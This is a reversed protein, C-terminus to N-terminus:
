SSRQADIHRATGRHAQRAPRGEEDHHQGAPRGTHGRWDRRGHRREGQACHRRDPLVRVTADQHRGVRQCPQITTSSNFTLEFENNFTTFKRNAPKLSGGSILYVHNKELIASFQDVQENFMTARIEGGQGDLLDVSLLKGDGKANTYTKVDGKKTVRVKITWRNMYPSLATVPYIAGSSEAAMPAMTSYPQFHGAASSQYASTTTSAAAAYPVAAAPVAAAAVPATTAAAGTPPALAGGDMPQPDGIQPATTVLVDMSLVIAIKKGHVTNTLTENVRVISSETVLNQEVLKNVQTALMGQVYNVGDSLVV